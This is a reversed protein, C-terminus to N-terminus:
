KFAQGGSEPSLLDALESRLAEMFRPGPDSKRTRYDPDDEQFLEFGPHQPDELQRYESHGILIQLEPYKQKLYRILKVNAKLQALTLRTGEQPQGQLEAESIDGTGINEFGISCHNLGICHRAFYNDPMIQYISGDRDVVFQVSVNVAGSQNLYPRGGLTEPAFIRFTSELTKSVTYHVVIVRPSIELGPMEPSGYERQYYKSYHLEAYEKTLQTRSPTFELQFSRDIEPLHPQLELRADYVLRSLRAVESEGASEDALGDVLITLYWTGFPAYVIGSDHRTASIGGTKHAVRVGAPLEAPIMENLKQALLIEKMQDCASASAAEGREIAANLLNLDRATIRNSLGAEFAPIDQVGRLVFSRKAGLSRMSSNIKRYGCKAILLNTALNDSVTIMQDVLMRVAAPQNLRQSLQPGADCIFTSDELFSQCVPDVLIEDALAFRGQDAQRFVEIMVPIKMTSAAHFRVDARHELRLAYDRDQFAFGIRCNLKEEAARVATLIRTEFRRYPDAEAADTLPTLYALAVVLLTAIRRNM